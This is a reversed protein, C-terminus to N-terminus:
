EALMIKKLDSHGFMVKTDIKAVGPFMGGGESNKKNWTLPPTQLIKFDERM